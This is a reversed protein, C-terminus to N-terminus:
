ASGPQSSRWALTFLVIASMSCAALSFTLTKPNGSTQIGPYGHHTAKIRGDHGCANRIRAAPGDPHFVNVLICLQDVCVHGVGHGLYRWFHVPDSGRGLFSTDRDNESVAFTIARGKVDTLGEDACRALDEMVAAFYLRCVNFSRYPAVRLCFGEFRNDISRESFHTTQIAPFM